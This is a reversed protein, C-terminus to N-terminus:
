SGGKLGGRSGRGQTGRLSGGMCGRLFRDHTGARPICGVVEPYGRPVSRVDGRTGGKNRGLGM